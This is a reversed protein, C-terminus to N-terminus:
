NVDVRTNWRPALEVLHLPSNQKLELTVAKLFIESSDRSLLRSDKWNSGSPLDTKVRSSESWSWLINSTKWSWPLLVVFLKFIFAYTHAWLIWMWRDVRYNRMHKLQQCLAQAGALGGVCGVTSTCTLAPFPAGLGGWTLQASCIGKATFLNHQYRCDWRKKVDASKKLSFTSSAGSSSCKYCQESNLDDSITQHGNWHRSARFM